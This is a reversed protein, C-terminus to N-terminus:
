QPGEENSESKEIIGCAIPITEQVPRGEVSAVSSPLTKSLSAGHIMIVKGALSFSKKSSLVGERLEKILKSLSGKQSYQYTKGAPYSEIATSDLQNDLPILIQKTVSIMEKVDIYGDNNYDNQYPCETGLHINQHHIVSAADELWNQVEIEDGLIKILTGGSPIWGSLPTNIPRIMARYTGEMSEVELEDNMMKSSSKSEEKGCSSLASALCLAIIKKNLKMNDGLLKPMLLM